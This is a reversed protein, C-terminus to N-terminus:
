ASLTPKHGHAQKTRLVIVQDCVKLVANRIRGRALAM